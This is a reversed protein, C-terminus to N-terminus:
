HISTKLPVILSMSVSGTAPNSTAVLQGQLQREVVPKILRRLTEKSHPDDLIRRVRNYADLEPVNDSITLHLTVSDVVRASFAVNGYRNQRQFHKLVNTILNRVVIEFEQALGTVAINRDGRYVADLSRRSGYARSESLWAKRIMDYLSFTETQRFGAGRLTKDCEEEFANIANSFQDKFRAVEIRLDAHTGHQAVTVLGDLPIGFSATSNKIDHVQAWLALHERVTSLGETRGASSAVHLVGQMQELSSRLSRGCILSAPGSLYIVFPIEAAVSIVIVGIPPAGNGSMRHVYMEIADSVALQALQAQIISSIEQPVDSASLPEAGIRAQMTGVSVEGFPLLEKTLSIVLNKALVELSNRGDGGRDISFQRILQATRSIGHKDVTRGMESLASRMFRAADEFRQENRRVLVSFVGIVADDVKLPIGIYSLPAEGFRRRLLSYHETPRWRTANIRLDITLDEPFHHVIESAGREAVITFMYDHSHVSAKLGNLLSTTEEDASYTFKLEGSGFDRRWYMSHSTSFFSTFSKLLVALARNGDRRGFVTGAWRGVVHPLLDPDPLRTAVTLDISSEPWPEGKGLGLRWLEESAGILRVLGFIKLKMSWIPCYAVTDCGKIHAILSVDHEAPKKGGIHLPMHLIAPPTSASATKFDSHTDPIFVRNVTNYGTSSWCLVWTQLEDVHAFVDVTLKLGVSELWEENKSDHCYAVSLLYSRFIQQLYDPPLSAPQYGM